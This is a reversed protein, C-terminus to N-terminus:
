LVIARSKRDDPWDYRGLPSIEPSRIQNMVFHTIFAAGMGPISEFVENNLGM